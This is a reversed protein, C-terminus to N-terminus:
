HCTSLAPSNLQHSQANIHSLMRLNLEQESDHVKKDDLYLM